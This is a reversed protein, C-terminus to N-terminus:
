LVECKRMCRHKREWRPMQRFMGVIATVKGETPTTEPTM